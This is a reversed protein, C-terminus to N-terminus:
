KGFVYLISRLIMGACLMIIFLYLAQKKTLGHRIRVVTATMVYLAAVIFIM